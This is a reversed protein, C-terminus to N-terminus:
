TFRQNLLRQKAVEVEAAREAQKKAYGPATRQLSTRNQYAQARAARDAEVRQNIANYVEKEKAYKPNTRIMERVEAEVRQNFTAQMTATGARGFRPSELYALAAARAGDEAKKIAVNRDDNSMAEFMWRSQEPLSELTVSQRPATKTDEIWIQKLLQERQLKEQHRDMAEKYTKSPNGPGSLPTMRKLLDSAIPGQGSRWLMDEETRADEWPNVVRGPMMKALFENTIATRGDNDKAWWDEAKVAKARSYQLEEQTYARTVNPQNTSPHVPTSNTPNATSLLGHEPQQAPQQAPRQASTQQANYATVGSNNPDLLSPQRAPAQYGQGAYTNAQTGAYGGANSGANYQNNTFGLNTSQGRMQANGYGPTTPVRSPPTYGTNSQTPNSSQTYGTNSQSRSQTGYIASSAPGTQSYMSYQGVPKAAPSGAYPNMSSGAYPNLAM